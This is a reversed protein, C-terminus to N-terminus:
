CRWHCCFWAACHFYVPEPQRCTQLSSQSDTAALCKGVAIPRVEGRKKAIALLNADFLTPRIHPPVGGSLILNVIETISILLPDDNEFGALLDKLHQPRLGDPGSASGCPFNNIALRVSAPSIQLSSTGPSPIVRRDSPASPHLKLLSAFTTSDTPALSEDSCLARVAGKVDGDELKAATRSAILQESSVAKRKRRLELHNSSTDPTSDTDYLTSQRIGRYRANDPNM